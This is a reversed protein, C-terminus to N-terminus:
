KAKTNQLPENELDNYIKFGVCIPILAFLYWYDSMRRFLFLGIIGVFLSTERIIFKRTKIKM